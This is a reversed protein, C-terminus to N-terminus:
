GIVGRAYEQVRAYHRMETLVVLSERKVHGAGERPGAKKKKPVPPTRGIVTAASM